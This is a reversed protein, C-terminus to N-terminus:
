KAHTKRKQETLLIAQLVHSYKPAKINMSALISDVSRRLVLNKSFCISSDKYTVSHWWNEPIWVMEGPNQEFQFSPMAREAAPVDPEWFLWEKKGSFLLNWSATGFMDQHAKVSMTGPGIIAWAFRPIQEFDYLDLICGLNPSSEILQETVTDIVKQLAASRCKKHIPWHAVHGNLIAESSIETASEWWRALNSLPTNKVFDGQKDTVEIVVEGFQRFFDSASRYPLTDFIPLSLLAPKTDDFDHHTTM